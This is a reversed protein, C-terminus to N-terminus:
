CHRYTLIHQELTESQVEQTVATKLDKLVANFREDENMADAIIRLKDAILIPDFTDELCVVFEFLLNILKQDCCRICSCTCLSSNVLSPLWNGSM